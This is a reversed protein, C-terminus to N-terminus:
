LHKGCVPHILPLYTKKGYALAKGSQGDYQEGHLASIEHISYKKMLRYRFCFKVPKSLLKFFM